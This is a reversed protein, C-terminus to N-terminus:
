FFKFAQKRLEMSNEGIFIKHIKEIKEQNKFFQGHVVYFIASNHM